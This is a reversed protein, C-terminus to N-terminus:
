IRAHPRQEHYSDLLTKLTIFVDAAAFKAQQLEEANAGYCEAFACFERWRLLTDAGYGQFFRAGAEGTLGMNEVLHRSVVQGGLASGEIAYLMGVIKGPSDIDEAVASPVAPQDTTEPDIQFHSLDAKLWPLRRRNEYRYPLNFRLLSAEIAGEVQRYFRHYVLLLTTYDQLPYGPRTLGLLLPHHSLRTHFDHTHQQLKERVSSSSLRPRPTDIGTREQIEVTRTTM